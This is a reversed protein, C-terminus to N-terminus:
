FELINYKECINLLHKLFILKHMYMFKKKKVLDISFILEFRNFSTHKASYSSAM